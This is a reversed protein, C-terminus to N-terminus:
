LLSFIASSITSDLLAISFSPPFIISVFTIWIGLESIVRFITIISFTFLIGFIYGLFAPVGALFGKYYFKPSIM